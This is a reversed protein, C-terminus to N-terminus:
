LFFTNAVYYSENPWQLMAPFYSNQLNQLPHDLIKVQATKAGLEEYM